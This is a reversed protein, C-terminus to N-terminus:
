PSIQDRRMIILKEQRSTSDLGSKSSLKVMFFIDRIHHFGGNWLTAIKKEMNFQVKDCSDWLIKCNRFANVKVFYIWELMYSEGPRLTMSLLYTDYITTTSHHIVMNCLNSAELIGTRPATEILFVTKGPIAIGMNVILRGLPRRIKLM